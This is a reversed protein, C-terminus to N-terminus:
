RLTTRKQGLHPRSIECSLCRQTKQSFLPTMERGSRDRRLFSSVIMEIARTKKMM